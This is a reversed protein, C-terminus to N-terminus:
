TWVENLRERAEHYRQLLNRHVIERKPNPADEMADLLKGLREYEEKRPILTSLAPIAVCTSCFVHGGVQQTAVGSCLWCSRGVSAAAAASWFLVLLRNAKFEELLDPAVHGKLRAQWGDVLLDSGSARLRDLLAQVDLLGGIGQEQETLTEAVVASM